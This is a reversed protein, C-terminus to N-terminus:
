RIETPNNFYPDTEGLRFADLPTWNKQCTACPDVLDIKYPNDINENIPIRNPSTDFKICADYVNNNWGVQHFYWSTTTATQGIPIISKTDFWGNIRRTQTLSGGISSSLISLFMSVDRCDVYDWDYLLESLYFVSVYHNIVYTRRYHSAGSTYRLGSNNYLKTTLSNLVNYDTNQGSAWVCAKDLVREWPQAMPAQPAALLTFYHHTTYTTSWAACYNPNNVPIAYIEWKWQFEHVGVSPPLTGALTLIRSDDFSGGCVGSTNNYNSIFLNCITGIGDTHGSVYSLKILLHMLGSYNGCDFRVKITRSSQGKIYAFKHKEMNYDDWESVNEIPTGDDSITLADRTYGSEYNFFIELPTVQLNDVCYSSGAMLCLMVTMLPFKLKERFINRKEM